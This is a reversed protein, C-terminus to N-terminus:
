RLASFCNGHQALTIRPLFRFPRISFCGFSQHSFSHIYSRRGSKTSVFFIDCRSIQLHGAFRQDPEPCCDSAVSIRFPSTNEALPSSVDALHFSEPLSKEFALNKKVHLQPMPLCWCRLLTNFYFRRLSM